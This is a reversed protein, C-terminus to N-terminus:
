SESQAEKIDQNAQKNAKKSEAKAKVNPDVQQIAKGLSGKPALMKDRLEDFSIGLNKSVHLAAICQGLNKFPSCTSQLDSVTIGSKALANTLATNLNKNDSLLTTPSKAGVASSSHGNANASPGTGSPGVDSPRGVNSPAGVGSPRGMGGAPRQAFGLTAFCMVGAFLMARGVYRM